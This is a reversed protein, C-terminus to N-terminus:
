KWQCHWRVANSECIGLEGRPANAGRTVRAALMGSILAGAKKARSSVSFEAMAAGSVPLGQMEEDDFYKESSKLM